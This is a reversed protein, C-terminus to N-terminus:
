VHRLSRPFLIVAHVGRGEHEEWEGGLGFYGLDSRGRQDGRGLVAADADLGEDGVCQDGPRLSEGYRHSASWARRLERWRRRLAERGPRRRGRVSAEVFAPGQNGLQQNGPLALNPNLVNDVDGGALYFKGAIVGAVPFNHLSPPTARLTWTNTAPNYRYFGHFAGCSGGFGAYVYLLGNIVGQAGCAAPHPM